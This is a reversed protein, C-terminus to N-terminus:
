QVFYETRQCRGTEGCATYHYHILTMAREYRGNRLKKVM